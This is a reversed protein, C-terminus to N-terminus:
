KTEDKPWWDPVYPRMETHQGDKAEVLLKGAKLNALRIMGLGYQGHVICVKGSAKGAETKIAAGSSINNSAITFPMIRKRIVGTHHTRATLEQGIYCGKHFSVGNLFDLNYELPMANAIPIEEEGECVGLRARHEEYAGRPAHGAGEICASPDTDSPLILRHGLKKVRPDPVISFDKWDEEPKLDVIEESFVTWPVLGEAHSIDAKSRLKFFKLHKTLAASISRDCEIFFSPTESHTKDKSLIADYLVRGQANLFMTYMSRITSDGHFLEINNTVLGQLFKVSDPGSVRLICRKDLQSYRLNSNARNSAFNRIYSYLFCPGRRFRCLTVAM